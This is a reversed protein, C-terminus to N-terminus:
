HLREEIHVPVAYQNAVEPGLGIPQPDIGFLNRFWSTVVHDIIPWVQQVPVDPPKCGDEGLTKFQSFMPNSLLPGLGSAEAIGIIGAGNGFTCFDDFANHGTKDIVWLRTPPLAHDFAPKTVRDFVAVNDNAGAVFLSPKDVAPPLTTTTSGSSGGGGSFTGSALSVYGRIDNIQRAAAEATAGGASHGVIAVRQEDIHGNFLGGPKANEAKMLTLTANIDDVASQPNGTQFTLAHPLDRSPHDPAAVIMGWSALHSTLHSSGVRIGSFGHSYFVLPFTGDAVKADRGAPYSFTAPINATLLSKIAEPTYDRVDYSVTVTTGAVAPYWVEVKNGAPLTLTTVGV